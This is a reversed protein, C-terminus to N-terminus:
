KNTVASILNPNGKSNHTVEINYVTGTPCIRFDTNGLFYEENKFDRYVTLLMKEGSNAKTFYCSVANAKKAWIKFDLTALYSGEPIDTARFSYENPTHDAELAQKWSLVNKM